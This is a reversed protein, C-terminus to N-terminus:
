SVSASEQTVEQAGDAASSGTEAAQSQSAQAQGSAQSEQVLGLVVLTSRPLAARISPQSAHEILPPKLVPNRNLANELQPAPLQLLVSYSQPKTQIACKLFGVWLKPYKWIQKSILRSMIEMVFDVLSPFAGIAQIVTRMFLLPLPIQEVLQNLVKALVQHTFVQRQEFCASCADMVKKLPIGDKEPDIGHIAILVESPTLPPNNHPSRADKSLFPLVPLLIEVDKMKSYYLKKVSSILDQSPVAGDALTQLVQMLLSESGAPPDLVISIVEPSSGITRILIPIQRHVAQKGDKPISKYITFIQRLLSHKKTCLAFYLSMCRQAEVLSSSIANEALQGDSIHEDSAVGHVPQEENGSKESDADKQVGHIAGDVNDVELAPIGDVISRLKENAFDEIKQSITAMPFLKNAVLRIAKMRVEEVPHVASQLAILLCRDRNSPRQVILNWVASLGQTVRDGSQSERDQRVNSKPSCLGELLKLIGEPLYPVECLLRGLSKDSAPFTDRLTEAVTLLFTEYVSTATRSSLFDQDQETERYLRYLVRLTLEHGELNLYDSLVHKRLLDWPDLELPFEAGLHALLPLRAYFGGSVAVQKYAELIRVFALKQLNDKAEDSLDINTVSMKPLILQSTLVIPATTPPQSADTAIRPSQAESLYTVMNGTSSIDSTLKDSFNGVHEQSMEQLDATSTHSADKSEEFSSASNLGPINSEITEITLPTTSHGNETAPSVPSLAAPFGASVIPTGADVSSSVLTTEATATVRGEERQESKSNDHSVSTKIKLLPFIDAFLQMLSDGAMGPILEGGDEKHCTLPINRMNAIVVEALLDSSISSILIGLPGAAKQGQAALAGFMSVLQHVAGSNGDNSPGKQISDSMARSPEETSEQVLLPTQRVRKSSLADDESVDTVEESILRKRGNDNNLDNFAQSSTNNNDERPLAEESVAATQEALDGINIARLAEVLRVRWPEASSHTCQLCAQFANKLAHHAGPIQVGKIVTRSPDLCLLVPLIRGYFSPRKRAIASLSNILVIIMSNSLSKVQPSRLQELLLGLSQSAEMALDGVDLLPHGARLWSINFGLGDGAEQPPDSSISPDPTYLLIMVEIFKVALLKVGENGPEIAISLVAGKFKLMWEWSSKMSEEIESSYLGQIVIKELVRQFLSIGTILAQRTVAPAEDKLFCLLCPIMHPLFEMHNLGIDGILEALLKRVPSAADGKLEAIRPVFEPLLTPDRHLVVEKLQRLRRLQSTVEGPSRAADLLSAARDSWSAAMTAVM